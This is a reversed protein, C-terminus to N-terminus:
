PENKLSALIAERSNEDVHLYNVAENIFGLSHADSNTIVKCNKLYPHIGTLEEKRNLNKIEVCSFKSDPPIFGLNFLLSNANKDIHAPIMVGHYQEMLGYVEDFCIDTAQILLNPEESIVRDEEDVLSQHGFIEIKNPIRILKEYVYSDFSMADTLQEFLCLVHVEERTTLEMGPIVTIGYAEGLYMALESHRCSNHDTVAIAQLEKLAAMGIINAPTM